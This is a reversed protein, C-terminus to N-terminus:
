LRPRNPIRRSCCRSVNRTMWAVKPEQWNLFEVSGGPVRVEMATHRSRFFLRGVPGSMDMEICTGPYAVHRIALVDAIPIVYSSGRDKLHLNKGDCIVNATWAAAMPLILAFLFAVYVVLGIAVEVAILWRNLPGPGEAQRVILASLGAGVAGFVLLAVPIAFKVWRAMRTRIRFETVGNVTRVSAFAPLDATETTSQDDEPLTAGM